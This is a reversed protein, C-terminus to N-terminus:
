PITLLTSGSSLSSPDFATITAVGSTLATALGESGSANSISAVVPASSSWTVSKTLNQTTGDTYTGVARFQQVKGRILTPTAPTVTISALVADSITATTVAWKGTAPDTATVTATGLTLGTALGESGVANSIVAVLTDSSSWTVTSTLDKTSGDSYTGTVTFQETTAKPIHVSGPTINMSVLTAATVDLSASGVVGTAPDTATITAMGVGAGAALGESGVANSISAFGNSSSWTLTTTLDLTTGDTYTGMAMYQQQQGKPVSTSAPTVDISALVAASVTLTTTASIGSTPELAKVTVTGVAKANAFGWSGAANSIPAITADDTSWTVVDTLDLTTHDTYTGTAAYQQTTGKPRSVAAPTVDISVLVASTVDLSTSGAIGTAPDTATITSTGVAGGNGLGHSGAANSVVVAASGSTWTVTDTLDRTSADTYTGTATFQQTTGNPIKQAAPTVNISVLVANDVSLTATAAVLTTPDTATITASGVTLSAAAGGDVAGNAVTAVAPASSTWTVSATIDQTTGDSYTGTAAYQQKTGNPITATPPTVAMKTLVAATVTLNTKGVTASIPDTASVVTTGVTAASALGQSGAANSVPAVALDTSSWTAQKTLDRVSGDSYTGTATFQESFGKPVNLGDPTVSISVLFATTVTLTTSGSVGTAPDTATITPSGAALTSALGQSGAANSISVKSTDSSSWTVSTTVDKTTKDTYTATAAYPSQVSRPLADNAPTVEISAIVAATVKLTTSGAISTAPDTATITTTGTTAGAAVGHSGAANSISAVGTVSSSWTVSATLDKTTSDSYIGTAVFTQAAGLPISPTSPSLTISVLVADTVGLTTSGAIATTSDTATITTTGKTAGSALGESGLANSVSAVALNSSSWTVTTTLDKTTSDSYTGTAIFAQANGKAVSPTTPTVAISKLLAATITLSTAGNISTAPDTATITATGTSAATALGYSGLANSVSAVGPASSSWTVSTTLDKTTGDSYTGTAALQKSTGNPISPTAPTVALSKLVAATVTLTTSGALATTPDTATVTVGGVTAATALGKSGTANSISAVSTASSSWTVTATIDKTSADSYTGTATFQKTTGNPISPAAPTVAISRLVAATVTLSTSGAIATTADTATVTVSGVTAATALGNSGTANSISAVSATSSSWTVTATLDKTSADSYTGTATFQKTTGNPISPAAPTVAIGTLVAATVTLTTGGSITSAADTATITATGPSAGTALGLSGAASSVTAVATASSTWAVTATLDKTSADSYTGTATFQKTTGNPISPMAPTVAISKLIASTIALTTSGAIKTTADTATLTATGPAVGTAIGAASAGTAITAITADSTSWDVSASIDKTTGDSFTGTAVLAQTTGKPISQAAPTVAISKLVATTVTLTATASVGSAKDSATITATGASTGTALGTADISAVAADSTSWSVSKSVDVTTADSMTATAVFAQTTGNPISTTPPTLALQKLTAATVTITSTGAVGTTTETATIKATGLKKAVVKGAADVTAITPDSSSWTLALFAVDTLKATSGDSFTELPGLTVSEGAALSPAAPSLAVGTLATGGTGSSNSCGASTLPLLSAMLALALVAVGSLARALTSPSM